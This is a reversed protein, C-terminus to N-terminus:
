LIVTSDIEQEQIMIFPTLFTETFLPAILVCLDLSMRFCRVKKVYKLGILCAKIKPFDNDATVVSPIVQTLIPLTFKEVTALKCMALMRLELTRESCGSFLDGVIKV